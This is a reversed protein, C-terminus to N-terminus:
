FGYLHNKPTQFSGGDPTLRSKINKLRVDKYICNNRYSNHGFCHGTSAYETLTAASNNKFFHNELCNLNKEFQNKARVDAFVGIFAIQTWRSEPKLCLKSLVVRFLVVWSCLLLKGTWERLFFSVPNHVKPRFGQFSASGANSKRILESFEDVIFFKATLCSM